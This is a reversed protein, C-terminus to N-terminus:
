KGPPLRRPATKGRRVRRPEQSLYNRCPTRVQKAAALNGKTSSRGEMVEATWPAGDARNPSKVPVILEDSKGPENMATTGRSPERCAGPGIGLGFGPDGPKRVPPNDERTLHKSAHM